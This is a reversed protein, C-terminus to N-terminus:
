REEGCRSCQEIVEKTEWNWISRFKHERCVLEEEKAALNSLIILHRPKGIPVKNLNIDRAYKKEHHKKRWKMFKIYRQM